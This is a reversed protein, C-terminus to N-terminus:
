RWLPTGDARIVLPESVTYRGNSKWARTRMVIQFLGDDRDLWKIPTTEFRDYGARRADGFNAFNVGETGSVDVALHKGGNQRRFVFILSAKPRAISIAVATGM